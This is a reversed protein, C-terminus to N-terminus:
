QRIHKAHTTSHSIYTQISEIATTDAAMRDHRDRSRDNESATRQDNEDLNCEVCVCVCSSVIAILLMNSGRFLFILIDYVTGIVTFPASHLERLLIRRQHAVAVDNDFLSPYNGIAFM